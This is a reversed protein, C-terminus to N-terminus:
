RGAGWIRSFLRGRHVICIVTNYQIITDYQITGVGHTELFERIHM